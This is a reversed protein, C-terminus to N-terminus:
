PQDEGEGPGPGAGRELLAELDRLGEPSGIEYFRRSVEFGGLEGALSLDRYLLALDSVGVDGAPLRSVVERTLATLGYDIYQMREDREASKDYLVVQGAAGDEARFVVNSRDWRGQNRLVTMLAPRGRERRQDKFAAVVPGIDIPLYSDGYLVLFWDDLTGEDLCLRLAGGTGRLKEGEDVYRVRLGFARGDGVAERILQGKYGVSYVVDTVGQRALLELQHQAFPRAGSGGRVPILAKPIDGAHARMRTGLGGALIVCALPTTTATV